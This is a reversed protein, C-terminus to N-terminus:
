QAQQAESLLRDAAERISRDAGALSVAKRALAEAQQADGEAMRLQAYELWLAANNPEIRLAREISAAAAGYDGADRAAQSQALLVASASPTPVAGSGPPIAASTDSPISSEATPTIGCGPLVAALFAVAVIHHTLERATRGM